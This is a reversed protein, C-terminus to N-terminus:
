GDTTGKDGHLMFVLEAESGSLGLEEELRAATAGQHVLRIAEAYPREAYQHSEISEQRYALDRGRNELRGLRQDVGVAGSCLANLNEALSDLRARNESLAVEMRNIRIWQVVVWVLLLLVLALLLLGMVVTIQDSM